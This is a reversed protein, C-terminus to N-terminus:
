MLKIAKYNFKPGLTLEVTMQILKAAMAFDYTSEKRRRKQM